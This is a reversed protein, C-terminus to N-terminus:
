DMVKRSLLYKKFVSSNARQTLIKVITLISDLTAPYYAFYRYFVVVSLVHTLARRKSGSVCDPAFALRVFSSYIIFELWGSLLLVIWTFNKKILKSSKNKLLGNFFFLIHTGLYQTISRNPTSSFFLFFGYIGFFHFSM